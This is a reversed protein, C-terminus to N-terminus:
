RRLLAILDLVEERTLTDLLGEPMPSVPNPMSQEIEDRRIVVSRGNMADIEITLEDKGVGVTRGTVIRGDAMLYTANLYKPDVQRSPQLISELLARGDFRKGVQTLDPGNHGGRQGFRHCQLCAAVALARQGGEASRSEVSLRNVDDILDEMTWKQVVPRPPQLAHSDGTSPEDLRALEVELGGRLSDPLAAEFDSRLNRWTTEVLKGGPLSRAKDLWELLRRASDLDWGTSVRSLTKAYQFQEEQTAATEILDLSREIVRPLEFQVLLEQLLWNVAFSQHPFLPDLRQAIAVQQAADLRGQRIITLQLTRLPVLLEEADLNSWDTAALADVIIGQDSAEGVRALALLAMRKAHSDDANVVLERWGSVPQNELAVRASFRLWFDDSGLQQWIFDIASADEDRQYKELRKRLERAQKGSAISQPDVSPAAPQSSEPDGTGTWTVRYLGSQSGRGGTVFYMAGDPGFALDCVNLPAGELFLESKAEYTAGRPVLDVLLIRGFQWDAMFLADGFRAPWNSSDGFVMGTPSSLGTDLTSPLSDPFWQPWKGSGWRWGYEGGSVVHNLRTPRYWPLGVDWEMDADWTFMEGDRNFALDFQNRFGGAIVEWSEGEPDIRAVYGVRDDQGGDHPSPLLWDNRPDRYPSRSDIPDPFVVDNGVVVYVMGDPGLVIQNTGHGYRSQYPLERLLKQTEYQGDGDSDTLRYVTQSDTASVYLSDHAHLVGRVHRFSDTHLLHEFDAADRGANLRLRGLGRDDLGVIIAGDADFTMSIWSGENEQASRLLEVQFGDPARISSPRTAQRQDAWAFMAPIAALWVSLGVRICISM